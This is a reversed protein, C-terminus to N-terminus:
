FTGAQKIFYRYVKALHGSCHLCSVDGVVEEYIKSLESIAHTNPRMRGSEKIAALHEIIEDKFDIVLKRDPM